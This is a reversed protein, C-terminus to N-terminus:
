SIKNRLRMWSGGNYVQSYGKSRLFGLASASRAGSACCTIIPTSKSKLKNLQDNLKNLPINISGRIHGSSFEGPTRVDVIIAGKAVLDAYDTKEGSFLKKLAEFM